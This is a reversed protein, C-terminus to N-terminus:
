LLILLGLNYHIDMHFPEDISKKFYLDFLIIVVESPLSGM